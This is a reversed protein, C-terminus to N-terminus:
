RWLITKFAPLTVHNHQNNCVVPVHREVRSPALLAVDDDGIHRSSGTVVHREVQPSFVALVRLRRALGARQCGDIIGDIQIHAYLEYRHDRPLESGDLDVGVQYGEQPRKRIKVIRGHHHRHTGGRRGVGHRLLGQPLVDDAVGEDMPGIIRKRHGDLLREIRTQAIGAVDVEGDVGIEDARDVPQLHHVGTARPSMQIPFGCDTGVIIHDPDLRIIRVILMGDYPSNMGDTGGLNTTIHGPERRSGTVIEVDGTVPPFRSPLRRHNASPGLPLRQGRHVDEDREQHGAHRRSDVEEPDRGVVGPHLPLVGDKVASRFRYNM